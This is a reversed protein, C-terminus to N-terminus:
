ALARARKIEKRATAASRFGSLLGSIHAKDGIGFVVLRPSPVLTFLIACHLDERGADYRTVYGEPDPDSLSAVSAFAICDGSSRSDLDALFAGFPRPPYDSRAHVPEQLHSLALWQGDKCITGIQKLVRYIQQFAIEKESKRMPGLRDLGPPGDTFGRTFHVTPKM